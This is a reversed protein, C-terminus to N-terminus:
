YYKWEDDDGSSKRVAGEGDQEKDEDPWRIGDGALSKYAFGGLAVLMLILIVSAAVGVLQAASEFFGSGGPFQTLVYM